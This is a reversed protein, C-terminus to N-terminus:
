TSSAKARILADMDQPEVSPRPGADPTPVRGTGSLSSRFAEADQELEEKTEGRLRHAQELPVGKAAAAEYRMLKKEAADARTEATAAREELRQQVTKDRDEFEKVKNRWKANESRLEKVYEEDFVKPQEGSNSESNDPGQGRPPEQGPVSTDDNAPETPEQSM